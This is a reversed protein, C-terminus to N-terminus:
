YGYCFTELGGLDEDISVSSYVCQDDILSLQPALIPDPFNPNPDILTKRNGSTIQIWPMEELRLEEVLTASIDLNINELFHNSPEVLNCNNKGFVLQEIKVFIFNDPPLIGTRSGKRKFLALNNILITISEFNNRREASVM